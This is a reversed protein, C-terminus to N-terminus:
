TKSGRDSPLRRYTANPVWWEELVQCADPQYVSDESFALVELCERILTEQKATLSGLRPPDRDPPRLSSLFADIALSPGPPMSFTLKKGQPIIVKPASGPPYKDMDNRLKSTVDELDDGYEDDERSVSARPSGRASRRPV